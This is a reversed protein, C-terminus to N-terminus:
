HGTTSLCATMQPQSPKSLMSGPVRPSGALSIHGSASGGDKGTQLAPARELHRCLRLTPTGISINYIECHVCSIAGLKLTHCYEDCSNVAYQRHLTSLNCQLSVNGSPDIHQLCCSWACYYCINLTLHLVHGGVLCAISSCQAAESWQRLEDAAQLKEAAYDTDEEQLLRLVFQSSLHM